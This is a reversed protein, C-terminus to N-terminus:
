PSVGNRTAKISLTTNYTGATQQGPIDLWFKLYSYQTSSMAAGIKANAYTENIRLKSATPVTNDTNNYYYSMNLIDLAGVGSWDIGRMYLDVTTGNSAQVQVSYVTTGAGTNGIASNNASNPNLSGFAVGASLNTSLGIAVSYNYIIVKSSNWPSSYNTGDNARVSCNWVENGSVNNLSFITTKTNNAVGTKNGWYKLTSGNFINYEVILTANEADMATANCQLTTSPFSITPQLSVDIGPLTNSPPPPAPIEGWVRLEYFYVLEGSDGSKSKCSSDYVGGEVRIYRGETLNFSCNQWTKTTSFTCDSSALDVEGDCSIDNCVKIIGAKCPSHGYPDYDYQNADAYVGIWSWNGTDGMDVTIGWEYVPTDYGGSSQENWYTSTSEDIAKTVLYNINVDQSTYNVVSSPTTWTPDVYFKTTFNGFYISMQENTDKWEMKQFSTTNTTENYADAWGIAAKFRTDKEDATFRISNVEKDTIITSVTKSIETNKSDIIKDGAPENIRWILRYERKVDGIFELSIKPTGKSFYYTETLTSSGDTQTRKVTLKNKDTDDVELKHTPLSVTVWGKDYEEVTWTSDDILTQNTKHDYMITHFPHFYFDGYFNEIKYNGNQEHLIYAEGNVSNPPSMWEASAMQTLLLLLILRKM